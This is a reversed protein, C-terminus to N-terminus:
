LKYKIVKNVGGVVCNDPVDKTIVANPAVTVNNGINVRGIIRAGSCINCNDGIVPAEGENKQGITIQPQLICNKGIKCNSNVIISGWHFITLGKDFVNPPIQYGLKFSLNRLRWLWYARSLRKNNIAFEAQRLTYIYEWIVFNDCGPHVYFLRKLKSIISKSQCGIYRLADAELYERLEIKTSIM